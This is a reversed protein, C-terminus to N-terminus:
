NFYIRISEMFASRTIIGCYYRSDNTTVKYLALVLLLLLLAGACAALVVAWLPIGEAPQPPVLPTLVSSAQQSRPPRELPVGLYPLRSVRAVAVSTLTM